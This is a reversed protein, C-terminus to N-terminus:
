FHWTAGTHCRTCVSFDDGGFARKGNHCSMCSFASPSAHHNLPQPASVQIRRAVGPRVRHCENCSLGESKDHKAHTFGLRFAVASERARVHRGPEHCTGCSSIDRDGSKAQPGHCQYCTVHANLGAPITMAVGARSPRHCTVCGVSGMRVHRAHDFKMNFSNLRPFPKLKGSQADTHCITCLPGSSNAFQQAHCGACPLHGTGGPMTPRPSNTERRHCLLCPMRAHNPNAHKFTSYTLASEQPTEAIALATVQSDSIACVFVVGFALVVLGTPVPHKYITSGPVTRLSWLLSIFWVRQIRVATSLMESRCLKTRTIPKRAIFM